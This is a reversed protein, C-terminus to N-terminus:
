AADVNRDSLGARRPVEVHVGTVEPRQRLRTARQVVDLYGVAPEDGERASNRQTVAVAFDDAGDPDTPADHLVIVDHSLGTRLAQASRPGLPRSGTWCRFLNTSTAPLLATAYM